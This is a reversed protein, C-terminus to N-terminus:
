GGIATMSRNQNRLEDSTFQQQTDMGGRMKRKSNIAVRIATEISEGNRLATLLDTEGNSFLCNKLKGNATLRIRNCSDCFPNTVTSIIAFSGQYNNIRYNKSTDNPADEIKGVLSNGFFQTAKDLVQQHSVLQDLNWKNGDFPMFEIFRVNINLDKTLQIFAPIEDENFGKMLVCNLKIKFFDDKVFLRINEMVKKFDNRRTITNFKQEDLSDISVNIKQIGCAKFTEIYKDILVGNTTISLEVPLTALKELILAVDKRVLPEGGTIRIKTVGLAVFKQAVLFVEEYTMIHNKPSLPIGAAPMCYTCRFNCRETISIRLYSHSRQFRDTLISPSQSM